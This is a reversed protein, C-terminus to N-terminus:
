LVALTKTWYLLHRRKFPSLNSWLYAFYGLADMWSYIHM